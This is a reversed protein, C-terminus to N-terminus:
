KKEENEEKVLKMEWATMDFNETYGATDLITEVKEDDSTGMEDDEKVGLVPSTKSLHQGHTITYADGLEKKVQKM